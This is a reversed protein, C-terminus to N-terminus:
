NGSNMKCTGPTCMSGLDGFSSYDGPRQSNYCTLADQAVFGPVSITGACMEGVAGTPTTCMGTTDSAYAAFTFQSQMLGVGCYATVSQPVNMACTKADAANAASFTKISLCKTNANEVYCPITTLPECQNAACQTRMGTCSEPCAQGCAGCNKNDAGFDTCGGLCCHPNASPCVNFCSGCNNADSGKVNICVGNCSNTDQPCNCAGSACVLGSACAKGCTGCNSSDTATNTCTGGCCTQGSQCAHGCSGCNNVDTQFSSKNVCGGHCCQQGSSCAHGCAGCNANDSQLNTECGDSYIKNCDGYNSNCAKIACQASACMATGNAVNCVTGCAGCNSTDTALNACAGACCAQGRCSHGCAGCNEPDSEENVCRLGCLRRAPVVVGSKVTFGGPCQALNACGGNICVSTDDHDCARGCEGCNMRSTLVDVLAGDCVKFNPPLQTIVHGAGGGLDPVPTPEPRAQAACAVHYFLCAAVAVM